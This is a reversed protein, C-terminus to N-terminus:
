DAAVVSKLADLHRIIAERTTEKFESEKAKEIEQLFADFAGKFEPSFWEDKALSERVKAATQRVTEGKIRKVTDAVHIATVKGQPATKVAEFWAGARDEMPLKALPRVQAENTPLNQQWNAVNELSAEAEEPAFNHGTILTTTVAADHIRWAYSRSMEFRDRVYAEWTPHTSRYLQYEMIERLALGVAIFGAMNKRIIGELRDRREQEQATLEGPEFIEIIQKAM